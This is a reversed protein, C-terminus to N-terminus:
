PICGDVVDGKSNSSAVAPADVRDNQSFFEHANMDETIQVKLKSWDLEGLDIGIQDNESSVDVGLQVADPPNPVVDWVSRHDIQGPIVFVVSLLKRPQEVLNPLLSCPRINVEKLVFRKLESSKSEESSCKPSVHLQMAIVVDPTKFGLELHIVVLANSSEWIVPLEPRNIRTGHVM